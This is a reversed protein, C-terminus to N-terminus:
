TYTGVFFTGIIITTFLYILMPIISDFAFIIYSLLAAWLCGATAYGALILGHQYNAIETFSIGGGHHSIPIIIPM